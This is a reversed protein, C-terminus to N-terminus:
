KDGNKEEKGNMRSEGGGVEGIHQEKNGGRGRKMGKGKGKRCRGGGM